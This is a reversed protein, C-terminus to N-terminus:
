AEVKLIATVSITRKNHTIVYHFIQLFIQYKVPTQKKLFEETVNKDTSTYKITIELPQFSCETQELVSWM